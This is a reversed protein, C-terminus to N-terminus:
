YVQFSIPLTYKVAVPRKRQMGPTMQPLKQIIRRAEKELGKHSATAEIDTVNGNKDIVFLVAIRQKGQLGLGEALGTNFKKNVFQSIKKAFCAKAENNELGECGPYVPAEELLIFPIPEDNPEGTIDPLSGIAKNIDTENSPQTPVLVPEKADPNNEGIKIKHVPEKTKPPEVIETPQQPQEIIIKPPVEPYIFVEPDVQESVLDPLVQQEFKSELVGYALLMALIIGLQLFIISSKQLKANPHEQTKM